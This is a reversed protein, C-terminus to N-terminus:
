DLVNMLLGVPKPFKNLITQCPVEVDEAIKVLFCLKIGFNDKFVSYETHGKYLRLRAHLSGSGDMVGIVSSVSIM